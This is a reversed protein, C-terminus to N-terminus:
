VPPRSKRQFNFERLIHFGVTFQNRDGFDAIIPTDAIGDFTYRWSVYPNFSWNKLVNIYGNVSGGIDRFGANADFERLGSRLSQEPTVSFYADAYRNGIWSTQASVSTSFDGWRFLLATAQGDVITGRHGTKIGHRVKFRVSYRNVFTTAAFGGFEFTTGVDGLGQLAPNEDEDRRGVVRISPGFAFNSFGVLAFDAGDDDFFLFNQFRVFVAPDVDFEYDDSGFYDPRYVPGLGFSLNTTQPTLFTMVSVFGQVPAWPGQTQDNDFVDDGQEEILEVRQPDRDRVSRGFFPDLRPEDIHQQATAPATLAVCAACASTLLNRVAAVIGGFQACANKRASELLGM